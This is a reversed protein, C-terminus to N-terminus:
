WNNSGYASSRQGNALIAAREEQWKREREQREEEM